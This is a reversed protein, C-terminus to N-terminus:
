QLVISHSAKEGDDHPLDRLVRDLSAGEGHEQREPKETGESQTAVSKKAVKWTRTHGIDARARPALASHYKMTALLSVIFIVRMQLSDAPLCKAFQQLM